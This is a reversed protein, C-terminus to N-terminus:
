VEVETESSVVAFVPGTRPVSADALGGEPASAASAADMIDGVGSLGTSEPPDDCSWVLTLLALTLLKRDIM